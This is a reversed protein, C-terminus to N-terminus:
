VATYVRTDNQTYFKMPEVACKRLHTKQRLRFCSKESIHKSAHRRVCQKQLIEGRINTRNVEFLFQRLSLQM